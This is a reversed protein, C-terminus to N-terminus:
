INNLLNQIVRICNELESSTKFNGITSVIRGTGVESLYITNSVNRGFSYGIQLKHGKNALIRNIDSKYQSCISNLEKTNM